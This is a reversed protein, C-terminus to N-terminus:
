LYIVKKKTGYVAPRLYRVWTFHNLLHFTAARSSRIRVNYYYLSHVGNVVTISDPPPPTAVPVLILILSLIFVRIWRQMFNHYSLSNMTTTMSLFLARYDWGFYSNWIIIASRYWSRFILWNCACLTFMSQITSAWVCNIASGARVVSVRSTATGLWFASNMSYPQTAVRPSSTTSSHPVLNFM